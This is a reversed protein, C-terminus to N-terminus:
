RLPFYGVDKVIKQGEDSLAWDIFDKIAGEPKKVTYMFLYRSIPYSGDKVTVSDLMVAPSADDKKVKLYKVGKGYAAGGYGIGNVDKAVANVIAATGPLAQVGPAYDANELVHERFFEYTGSSNERGYLIIGADKGGVDKWNKVAGTYIGKLQAINIVALPNTENVYIGIGDIASKVEVPTSGFKEKISTSEKAKIPRSANCIDTTGNILAAFGTGSGGGTVQLVRDPHKKMYAEAWRQSLIVMTDSGKITITSTTTAAVMMGGFVVTGALLLASRV